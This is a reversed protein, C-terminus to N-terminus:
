ISLNKETRMTLSKYSSNFGVESYRGGWRAGSIGLSILVNPPIGRGLYLIANTVTRMKFFDEKTIAKKTIRKCQDM